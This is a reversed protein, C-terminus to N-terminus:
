QNAATICIAPYPKIEKEHVQVNSFGATALERPFDGAFRRSRAHHDETLMPQAVVAIAGGSAMCGRLNELGDVGYDRLQNSNVVCIKDFECNFDPIDNVSAEFLRVRGQAVARKNRRTALRHMLPSTDLGCVIGKGVLGAFLELCVGPGFGVELVRDGPRPDLLMVAWLNRQHNMRNTAMMGGTVAGIWGKPKAFYKLPGNIGSM